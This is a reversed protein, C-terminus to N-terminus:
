PGELAEAIAVAARAGASDGLAIMESALSFNWPSRTGLAPRITLDAIGGDARECRNTRTRVRRMPNVRLVDVGVVYTAGLQRTASVPVPDVDIGDVLQRGDIHVPPFARRIASSAAAARAPNGRSLVVREGTLRDQAVSAFSRSLEDFTRTPILRAIFDDLGSTDFM